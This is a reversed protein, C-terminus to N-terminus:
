CPCMCCFCHVASLCHVFVVYLCLFLFL